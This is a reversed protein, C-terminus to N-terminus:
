PGPRPNARSLGQASTATSPPDAGTTVKAIAPAAKRGKRPVLGSRCSDRIGQLLPRTGRHPAFRGWSGLWLCM